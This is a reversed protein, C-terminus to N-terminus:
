GKKFYRKQNKMTLGISDGTIAIVRVGEKVMDNKRTRQLKGDVRVLGLKSKVSKKSKVYGLYNIKPWLLSKKPTKPKVKTAQAVKITKTKRSAKLTNLFPDRKPFILELSDKKRLFQM